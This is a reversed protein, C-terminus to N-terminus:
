YFGGSFFCIKPPFFLVSLRPRDYTHKNHRFQIRFVFIHHVIDPVHLDETGKLFGTLGLSLKFLFLYWTCCYGERGVRRREDGEKFVGEEM